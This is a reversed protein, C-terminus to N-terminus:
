ENRLSSHTGAPKDFAEALPTREKAEAISALRGATMPLTPTCREEVDAGGGFRWVGEGDECGWQKM